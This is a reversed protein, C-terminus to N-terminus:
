EFLPNPAPIAPTTEQQQTEIPAEEEATQQQEEPSIQQGESLGTAAEEGGGVGEEPTAGNTDAAGTTANTTTTTTDTLPSPQETPTTTTTTPLPIGSQWEWLTLSSIEESPFEQQGALIMSDLPALRGTSDTHVLAILIGRGTGEEIGFRAIAYIKMTANETGDETSIVAEGVATGEMSVIVSGTTTTSITETTNPLTLTGNGSFTIQFHTQNIPTENVVRLQEQFVPEPSLEIGEPPTTTTTTPEETTTVTAAAPATAMSSVAAIMIALTFITAATIRYRNNKLHKM